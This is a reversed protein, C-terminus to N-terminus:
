TYVPDELILVFSYCNMNVQGVLRPTEVERIVQIDWYSEFIVGCFTRVKFKWAPFEKSSGRM